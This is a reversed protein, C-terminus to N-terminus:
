EDSLPNLPVKRDLKPSRKRIIPVGEDESDPEYTPIYVQFPEEIEQEKKPEPTPVSVKPKPRHLLKNLDFPM